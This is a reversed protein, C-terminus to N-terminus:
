QEMWLCVRFVEGRSHGGSGEWAVGEAGQSGETRIWVVLVAAEVGRAWVTLEM